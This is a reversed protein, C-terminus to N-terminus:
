ERGQGNPKMICPFWKGALHEAEPTCLSAGYDVDTMELRESLGSSAVAERLFSYTCPASKVGYISLLCQNPAHMFNVLMKASKRTTRLYNM